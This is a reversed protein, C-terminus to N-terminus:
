FRWKIGNNIEMFRWTRVCGNLMGAKVCVLLMKCLSHEEATSEVPSNECLSSFMSLLSFHETRESSTAAARLTGGDTGAVDWFGGRVDGSM